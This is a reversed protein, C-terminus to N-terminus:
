TYVPNITKVRPREPHNNKYHFRNTIHLVKPYFLALIIVMVIVVVHGQLIKVNLVM